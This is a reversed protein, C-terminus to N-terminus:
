SGLFYPVVEKIFSKVTSATVRMQLYLKVLVIGLGIKKVNFHLSHISLTTNKPPYGGVKLFMIAHECATMLLILETSLIIIIFPKCQM